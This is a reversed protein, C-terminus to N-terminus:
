CHFVASTNKLLVTLETVVLNLFNYLTAVSKYVASSSINLTILKKASPCLSFSAYLAATALFPILFRQHYM